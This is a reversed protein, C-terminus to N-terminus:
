SSGSAEPATPCSPWGTTTASPATSEGAFRDSGPGSTAACGAPGRYRSRPCCSGGEVSSGEMLFVAYRGLPLPETRYEGDDGPDGERASYRDGTRIFFVVPHELEEAEVTGELNAMLSAKRELLLERREEVGLELTELCGDLGSRGADWMLLYRGARVEFRFRGDEDTNSEYVTELPSDEGRCLLEVESDAIGRGSEDVVRGALVALGPLALELGEGPRVNVSLIDHEVATAHLEGGGETAIRFRGQSDTFVIRDRHSIWADAVVAGTAASRVTGTVLAEAEREPRDRILSLEVEFTEGAVPVFRARHAGHPDELDRDVMELASGLVEVSTCGRPFCVWQDFAGGHYGQTGEAFREWVVGDIEPWTEVWLYNVPRGTTADVARVTLRAYELRAMRLLAPRGREIDVPVSEAVYDVQEHGAVDEVLDLQSIMLTDGYDEGLAFWFRGQQDTLTSQRQDAVLIGCELDTASEGPAGHSVRVGALPHGGIDVVVGSFLHEQELPIELREGRHTALPKDDVLPPETRRDPRRGAPLAAEGEELRASSSAIPPLGPEVTKAGETGLWLGLWLLLGLLAAITAALLIPRPM